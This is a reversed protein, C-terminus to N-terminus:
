EHFLTPGTRWHGLIFIPPQRLVTRRIRRGYWLNQAVRLTSHIMSIFTVIVAVYLKRWGVSFRNRVLLAMWTGFSCGEWMHASWVRTKKNAPAPAPARNIEVSAIAM